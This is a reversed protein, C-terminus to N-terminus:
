RGLADNPLRLRASAVLPDPPSLHEVTGLLPLDLRAQLAHLNDEQRQMQPDV